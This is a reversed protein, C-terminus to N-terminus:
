RAPRDQFDALYEDSPGVTGTVLQHVLESEWSGPRGATLAASSGLEAAAAALVHALWGAFDHADRAAELIAALASATHTPETM